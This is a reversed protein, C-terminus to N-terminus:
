KDGLEISRKTAAKIAKQITSKLNEEEFVELARETVGGPSTVKKRLTDPNDSSQKALEASGIIMDLLLNKIESEEFNLEKSSEMLAEVLYFIYAPGSGILSTYLDFSNEELVCTAGVSEFVGKSIKLDEDSCNGSACLASIGKGISAPTNPMARVIRQSGKLYKQIDKIRIGAAISIILHQKANILDSLENLVSNVIHPKVAIVITNCNRGIELNDKTTKIGFETNLALLHSDEPSSAIIKKPDLGGNILGAILASAMNGAGIFGIDNKLSNM